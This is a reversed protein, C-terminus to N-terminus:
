EIKKIFSYGKKRYGKGEYFRHAEERALGSNLSIIKIGQELAYQEAAELLKTGVGRKQYNKDVALAVVRIYMEDFEYAMGKWVGIFGIVEEEKVAVITHYDQHNQIRDLRKIVQEDVSDQYGLTSVILRNVGVAYEKQFVQILLKEGKSKM